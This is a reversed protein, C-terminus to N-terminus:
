KQIKSFRTDAKSRRREGRGGSREIQVNTSIIFFISSGKAYVSVTFLLLFSTPFKLTLSISVCFSKDCKLWHRHQPSDGGRRCLAQQLQSFGYCHGEGSLSFDLYIFLQEGRTHTREHSSLIATCLLESGRGEKTELSSQPRFGVKLVPANALM